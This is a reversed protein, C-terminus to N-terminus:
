CPGPPDSAERTLRLRRVVQGDLLSKLEALHAVEEALPLCRGGGVEGALLRQLIEADVGRETAVDDLKAKLREQKRVTVEASTELAALRTELLQLRRSLEQVQTLLADNQQKLCSQCDCSAEHSVPLSTHPGSM